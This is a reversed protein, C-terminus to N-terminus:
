AARKEKPVVALRLGSAALVAILSRLEPNGTKSLMRYTAERTLKAKRAVKAIGGQAQAVHRLALMIVAQDGDEIAAEIHAAAEEPDKLREILWETYSATPPM